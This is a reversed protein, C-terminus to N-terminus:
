KWTYVFNKPDSQQGADSFIFVTGYLTENDPGVNTIIGDYDTDMYITYKNSWPDVYDLTTYNNPVDLFRIHRSNGATYAAETLPAPVNTLLSMLDAYKTTTDEDAWSDPVPLIGYTSEYTKIATMIANM